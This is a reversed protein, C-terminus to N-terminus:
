INLRKMPLTRINCYRIVALYILPLPSHKAHGNISLVCLLIIAHIHKMNFRNM